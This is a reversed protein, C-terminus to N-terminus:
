TSGSGKLQWCWNRVILFFFYQLKSFWVIWEASRSIRSSQDDLVLSLYGWRAPCHMPDIVDPQQPPALQFGFLVPPTNFQSNVDHHGTAPTLGRVLPRIPNTDLLNWSSRVDPLRHCMCVCVFHLRVQNPPPPATNIESGPSLFHWPVQSTPPPPYHLGPPHQSILHSNSHRDLSPIFIWRM